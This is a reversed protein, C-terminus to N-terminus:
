IDILMRLRNGENIEASGSDYDICSLLIGNLRRQLSSYIGKGFIHNPMCGFPQVCAIKRIGEKYLNVIEGGILWGDAIGCKLSVFGEASKKFSSYEEACVFGYCKICESMEKQINQLYSMIVKFAIGTINETLHTDMYYLIYWSFGNVYFGVGEKELFNYLNHNGLHCYKIYLEGVIGILPKSKQIKIEAFDSSIKDFMCKMKSCSLLEGSIIGSKLRAIWKNTLIDTEGSLTEYPKIQNYLIMLIDGYMVAAIARRIMGLDIKLKNEKELGKFNLSIISINEYGARRIAKKIMYLYNSGRCADGAQPILFTIRKNDYNNRKLFTIIQGIILIVPYCLDNHSYKLGTQAINESYDLIVANYNKSCFAHKLLPFHFDLMSPILVTLKEKCSKKSM